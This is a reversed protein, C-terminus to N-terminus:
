RGPPTASAALIRALARSLTGTAARLAGWAEEPEAGFGADGPRKGAQLQSAQVDMGHM